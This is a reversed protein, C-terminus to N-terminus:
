AGLMDRPACAESMGWSGAYFGRGIAGARQLRRGLGMLPPDGSSLLQTVELLHGRNTDASIGYHKIDSYFFIMM